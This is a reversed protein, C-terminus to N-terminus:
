LDLIWDSKMSEDCYISFGELGEWQVIWNNEELIDYILEEWEHDFDEIKRTENHWLCPKPESYEVEYQIIDEKGDRMISVDQLPKLKYYEIAEDESNFIKFNFGFDNDKGFFEVVWGNEMGKEYKTAKIYNPKSHYTKAKEEFLTNV